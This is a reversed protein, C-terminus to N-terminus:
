TEHARLHTYSVAKIESDSFNKEQVYRGTSPSSVLISDNISLTSIINSTIGFGIFDNDSKGTQNEFPIVLVSPKDTPLLITNKVPTNESQLYVILGVFAAIFLAAVSGLYRLTFKSSTRLTRKQSESLLIDYAHFANEKVKQMGLDNFTLDVKGKVLDFISKSITVGSPQAFAELRSAINVGDGLLNRKEKIVDGM